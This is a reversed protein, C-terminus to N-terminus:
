SCGPTASAAARLGRSRYMGANRPDVKGTINVNQKSILVWCQRSQFMAFQTRKWNDHSQHCVLNGANRPDVKGTINVNQKSILVWCQRSQFMAFQTRKWNDHSQHCVLNISEICNLYLALYPYYILFLQHSDVEIHLSRGAVMAKKKNVLDRRVAGVVFAPNEVQRPLSTSGSESRGAINKTRLSMTHHPRSAEKLLCRSLHSKQREVFDDGSVGDSDLIKILLEPVDDSLAFVFTENWEPDSGKGAFCSLGTQFQHLVAKREQTRCTITVYPDMNSLFDTNELGKAGVLLVELTGRVM